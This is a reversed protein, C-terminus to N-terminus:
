KEQAALTQDTAVRAALKAPRTYKWRRHSWLWIEPQRRIDQELRRTHLESIAGDPLAKPDEALLEFSTEYYGRRVRRISAFVVPYNFKKAVKETGPFVPTDQNMFNTWYAFEPHPTQDAIFATLVPTGRLALLDRYVNQMAILKLGFRTRMRYILKDFRTNALPKYIIYSPVRSQLVFSQGAWEWNGHHGLVLVISKGEAYLKEILDTNQYTFRRQVEAPSITFVKVSELLLDCFYAFFKRRITRLEVESKDPFSKRLNDLVVRRRYRAVYFVIFFFVDSVVYLARMPLYSLGYLLPLVLYYAIAQM